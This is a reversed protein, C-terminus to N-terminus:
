DVYISIVAIFSKFFRHLDLQVFKVTLNLFMFINSIM